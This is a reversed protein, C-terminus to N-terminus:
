GEFRWTQLVAEMKTGVILGNTSNGKCIIANRNLYRSVAMTTLELIIWALDKGICVRSGRGFACFVDEMQKLRDQPNDLWREPQFEEACSGFVDESRCIVYQSSWVRTNRPLPKTHPITTEGDPGIIREFPGSFPPHLRLAEKIVAQLSDMRSLHSSPPLQGNGITKLDMYLREQWKPHLGLEYLIAILGASTSGAGALIVDPFLLGM